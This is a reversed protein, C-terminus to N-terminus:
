LEHPRRHHDGVAMAAEELCFLATQRRRQWFFYFLFCFFLKYDNFVLVSVSHHPKEDQNCCLHTSTSTLISGGGPGWHSGLLALGDHLLEQSTLSDTISAASRGFTIHLSVLLHM